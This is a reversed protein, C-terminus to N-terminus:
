RRKLWTKWIPEHEEHREVSDFFPFDTPRVFISAIPQVEEECIWEAKTGGQKFKDRPLFYICGTSFPDKWRTDLSFLYYSTVEENGEDIICGNRLSGVSNERDLIAFFMSWVANISAFVATTEKGNFLTSKKPTFTEIGSNISGHVVYDGTWIAYQIWRHIPQFNTFDSEGKKVLDMFEQLQEVKEANMKPIILRKLPSRRLFFRLFVNLQADGKM